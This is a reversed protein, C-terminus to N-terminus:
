LEIKIKNGIKIDKFSNPISEIVYKCPKKPIYTLKFPPLITKDVVKFDKDIFLIEYKSFCFLMTIASSYKKNKRSPFVLCMGKKVKKKNAFMLGKSIQWISKAYVMEKLIIKNKHILKAM